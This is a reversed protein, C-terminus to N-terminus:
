GGSVPTLLAKPCAVSRGGGIPELRPARRTCAEDKAPHQCRAHYPCGSPQDPRSPMREPVAMGVGAKRKSPDPRPASALLAKTYPHLPVRCLATAPATEVIRGRYMVAVRDSV